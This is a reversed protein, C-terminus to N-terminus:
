AGSRWRSGIMRKTSQRKYKIILGTDTLQGLIV